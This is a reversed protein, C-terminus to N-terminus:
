GITGDLYVWRGDERTFRSRERQVGGPYYAAFEVVGEADFPGGAQTDLIVLRHFPEGAPDVHMEAPRTERAWTRELYPADGVVFATYRSRMLAEATPASADGTIYRGCCAEYPLGLGCPCLGRVDSRLGSM